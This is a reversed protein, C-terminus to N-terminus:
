RRETLFTTFQLGNDSPKEKKHTTSISTHLDAIVGEVTPVVKQRALRCEEVGDCATLLKNIMIVDTNYPGPLCIQLEKLRARMLELSKNRSKNPNEEIYRLLTTSEWERTLTLTREQTLFRQPLQTIMAEFSSYKGKISDFYYQVGAGDLMFSFARPRDAQNIGSQDCRELFLTLKRELNDSLSGNYKDSPHSYAKMISSRGFSPNGSSTTGGGTSSAGTINGNTIIPATIPQGSGPGNEDETCPALAPLEM